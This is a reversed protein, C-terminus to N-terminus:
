TREFFHSYSYSLFGIGIPFTLLQFVFLIASVAAVGVIADGDPMGPNRLLSSLVIQVALQVAMPPVTCAVIGWFMRWTNGRTRKWTEKFTLDLDGVARAPLLLSVRPAVGFVALSFLIIAAVFIAFRPAAGTIVSSLLIFLPMVVVLPPLFVILGIAFGMWVYRWLGKTAVNSGSFGPHEGLIIRRHWAVAISVSAFAFVLITITGLVIMEVPTSPPMGRKMGAALSVRWSFELWSMIGMLPAVVALWLWSIRLVDQFNHFYTSYSLRITDWLPLKPNIARDRRSGIRPPPLSTRARLEPVDGAREWGAFGEHWVLVDKGDPFDALTRKLEQLSLTGIHGQSGLYYWGDSV